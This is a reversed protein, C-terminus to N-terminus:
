LYITYSLNNFDRYGNQIVRYIYLSMIKDPLDCGSNVCESLKMHHHAACHESDRM